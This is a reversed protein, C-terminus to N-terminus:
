VQETLAPSLGAQILPTPDYFFREHSIRDGRWTQLAIEEIRIRAGGTVTWEAHWEIISHDGDVLLTPTAIEHVKSTLHSAQATHEISAELGIRPPYNAEQIIVDDHYFKRYAEVAKDELVLAILQNLQEKRHM